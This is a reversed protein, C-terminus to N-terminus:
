TQMMMNQKLKNEEGVEERRGRIGNHRTKNQKTKNQKEKGSITSRSNSRNTFNTNISKPASPGACTLLYYAYNWERKWM